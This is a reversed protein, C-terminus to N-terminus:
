FQFTIERQIRIRAKSVFCVPNKEGHHTSKVRRDPQWETRRHCCWQKEKGKSENSKCIVFDLVSPLWFLRWLSLFFVSPPPPFSMASKIFHMLLTCIAAVFPLWSQASQMECWLLLCNSLLAKFQWNSHCDSWLQNVKTDLYMLVNCSTVILDPQSCGGQTVNLQQEVRAKRYIIHRRIKDNGSDWVCLACKQMMGRAEIKKLACHFFSLELCVTKILLKFYICHAKDHCCMCGRCDLAHCPSTQADDHFEYWQWHVLQM